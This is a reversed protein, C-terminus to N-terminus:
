VEYAPIFKLRLKAFVDNIIREAKVCEPEKASYQIVGAQKYRGAYKTRWNEKNVEAQHLKSCLPCRMQRHGVQPKVELKKHCDICWLTVSAQLKDHEPCKGGKFIPKDLLLIYKCGCKFSIIKFNM